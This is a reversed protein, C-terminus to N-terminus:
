HMILRSHNLNQHPFQTRSCEYVEILNKVIFQRIDSHCSVSEPALHLHSDGTRFIVQLYNPILLEGTNQFSNSKEINPVPWDRIIVVTVTGSVSIWEMKLHSAVWPSKIVYVQWSLKLNQIINCQVNDM